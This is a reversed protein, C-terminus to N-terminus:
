RRNLMGRVYNAQGAHQLCDSLVSVLRAGATVPPDWSADVVEDLDADRFRHLLLKTRDATDEYYGMLLEPSLGRVETIQAQTHGYGTDHADLSLGFREHWGESVWVQRRDEIDSIHDDQVRTLHWILWGISNAGAGPQFALDASSLGSCARDLGRPLRAFGELLVVTSRMRNEKRPATSLWSRTLLLQKASFGRGM